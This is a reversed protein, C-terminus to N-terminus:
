SGTSIKEARDRTGEIVKNVKPLTLREKMRGGPMSIRKRCFMSRWRRASSRWPSLDLSQFITLSPATQWSVKNPVAVAVKPEVETIKLMAKYFRGLYDKFSENSRQKMTFLYSTDREALRSAM